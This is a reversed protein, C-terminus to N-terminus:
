SEYFVRHLWDGMALHAAIQSIDGAGQTLIIDGARCLSALVKDLEEQDQVLVPECSRGQRLSSCLAASDAGPIMTEHAAYVPLMLLVDAQALVRCFDDFLDRTRTYRHPQYIMVIRRGHWAQRIAQLTAKIETPHHGYDDILLVQGEGFPLEAGIHLRREIGKFGSLAHQIHQESVELEIAIAIAALANLINHQGPLNLTVEFAIQKERCVVDFTTRFGQCRINRASVDAEQTLGYGLVPRAFSSLEDVIVPDDVCVVALGYFPLRQVFETFTARLQMFDGAYTEMHDADINTIVALMPNLHLFSADSEDAEVVLYQGKGLRATSESRKLCGGIVFTPDMQADTLISAILSTVTTKGHTGAVAIGYRFRMLEALMQARPVIPIRAQRAAVLEVNDDAIASSVVVVDVGEVQSAYQGIAVRAGFQQLRKTLSSERIDSGSVEYGELQLVEAIGAMGVGGIGIFHIRRIRRMQQKM